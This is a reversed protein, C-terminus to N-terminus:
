DSDDKETPQLNSDVPGAIQKGQTLEPEEEDERQIYRIKCRREDLVKAIAEKMWARQIAALKAESCIHSSRELM